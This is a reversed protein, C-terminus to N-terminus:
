NTLDSGPQTLPAVGSPLKKPLEWRDIIQDDEDYTFTFYDRRVTEM